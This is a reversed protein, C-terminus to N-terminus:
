QYKYHHAGSSDQYQENWAMKDQNNLQMAHGFSESLNRFKGCVQNDRMDVVQYDMYGVHHVAFHGSKVKISM